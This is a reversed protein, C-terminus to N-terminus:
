AAVLVRPGALSAPPVRTFPRSVTDPSLCVVPDHDFYSGWEARGPLRAPDAPCLEILSVDHRQLYTRLQGTATFLLMTTGLDRTRNVLRSLFPGAACCRVAALTSIEVIESRDVPRNLARAALIEARTDCYSESFFAEEGPRVGAACLVDGGADSLVALHPAFAPVSCGYRLQYVAEIGAEARARDPHNTPIISFRM